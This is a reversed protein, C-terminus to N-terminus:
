FYSARNCSVRVLFGHMPNLTRTHNSLTFYEGHELFPDFEARELEEELASASIDEDESTTNDDDDSFEQEDKPLPSPQESANVHNGNTRTPANDIEDDSNSLDIVPPDARKKFPSGSHKLVQPQSM